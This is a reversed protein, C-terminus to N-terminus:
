MDSMSIHFFSHTPTKESCLTTVRLGSQGFLISVSIMIFTICLPRSVARRNIIKRRVDVGAMKNQAYM